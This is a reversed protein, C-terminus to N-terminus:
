SDAKLWFHRLKFRILFSTIDRLKRLLRLVAICCRSQPTVAAYRVKILSTHTRIGGPGNSFKFPTFTRDVQSTKNVKRHPEVGHRGVSLLLKLVRLQIRLFEPVSLFPRIRAFGAVFRNADIACHCHQVSTIHRSLNSEQSISERRLNHRRSSRQCNLLHWPVSTNHCCAESKVLDTATRTRATGIHNGILRV